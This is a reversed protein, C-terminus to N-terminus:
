PILPHRLPCEGSYSVCINSRSTYKRSVSDLYVNVVQAHCVNVQRSILNSCMIVQVDRVDVQVHCIIFTVYM